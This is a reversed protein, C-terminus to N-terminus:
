RVSRTLLSEIRKNLHRASKGRRRRLSDLWRLAKKIDEIITPDVTLGDAVAFELLEHADRITQRVRTAIGISPASVEKGALIMAGYTARRVFSPDIDTERHLYLRSM